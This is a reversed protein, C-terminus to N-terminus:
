NKKFECTESQAGLRLKWSLKLKMLSWIMEMQFISPFHIVSVSASHTNTHSVSQISCYTSKDQWLLQPIYTSVFLIMENRIDKCGFFYFSIFNYLYIPQNPKTPQHSAQHNRSLIESVWQTSLTHLYISSHNYINYLEPIYLKTYM